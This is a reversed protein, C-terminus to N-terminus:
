RAPADRGDSRRGYTAVSCSLMSAICFELESNTREVYKNFTYLIRIFFSVSFLDQEVAIPLLRRTCFEHLDDGHCDTNTDCRLRYFLLYNIVILCILFALGLSESLKHISHVVIMLLLLMYLYVLNVFNVSCFNCTLVRCLSLLRNSTVLLLISQM